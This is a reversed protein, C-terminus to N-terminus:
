NSYMNSHPQFEYSYPSPIRHYVDTLITIELECVTMKGFPYQIKKVLQLTAFWVIALNTWSVQTAM